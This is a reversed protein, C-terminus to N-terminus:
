GGFGFNKIFTIMYLTLLVLLLWITLLCVLIFGWILFRTIIQRHQDRYHLLIKGAQFGCFLCLFQHLLALCNNSTIGTLVASCFYNAHLMHSCQQHQYLLSPPLLIVSAAVLFLYLVTYSFLLRDWRFVWFAMLISNISGLVGEPDFPM